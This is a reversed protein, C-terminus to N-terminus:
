LAKGGEVPDAFLEKLPTLLIPVLLASSTEAMSHYQDQEIALPLMNVAALNAQIIRGGSDTVLVADSASKLSTELFRSLWTNELYNEVEKMVRCLEDEEEKSFADIQGDEMNLLWM